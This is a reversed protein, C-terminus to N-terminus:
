HYNRISQPHDKHVTPPGGSLRESQRQIEAKSEELEARLRADAMSLKSTHVLQIALRESKSERRTDM